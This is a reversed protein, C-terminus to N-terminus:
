GCGAYFLGQQPLPAIGPYTRGRPSLDEALREVKQAEGANRGLRFTSVVCSGRGIFGLGFIGWDYYKERPEKIMGRANNKTTSIDYHTLGLVIDISDPKEAYLYRIISDARYRPSKINVFFAKPMKIEPMVVTKFGYKEEIKETVKPIYSGHFGKFPQIGVVRPGKM